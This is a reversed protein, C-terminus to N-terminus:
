KNQCRLARPIQKLPASSLCSSSFNSALAVPDQPNNYAGMAHNPLIEGVEVANQM